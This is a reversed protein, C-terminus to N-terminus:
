ISHEKLLLAPLPIGMGSLGEHVQMKGEMTGVRRVQLVPLGKFKMWCLVFLLNFNQIVSQSM